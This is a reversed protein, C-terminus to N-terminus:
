FCVPHSRFCAVVACCLVGSGVTRRQMTDSKKVTKVTGAWRMTRGHNGCPVTALALKVQPCERPRQLFRSAFLCDEHLSLAGRLQFSGGSRYSQTFPNGDDEVDGEDASSMGGDAGDAHAGDADDEIGKYLLDLIELAHLRDEVTLDVFKRQFDAPDHPTDRTPGSHLTTDAVTTVSADLASTGDEGRGTANAYLLELLKKAIGHVLL